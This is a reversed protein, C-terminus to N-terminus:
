NATLLGTCGISIDIGAVSVSEIQFMLTTKELVPVPTHPLDIQVVAGNQQTQPLGFYVLGNPSVFIANISYSATATGSKNGTILFNNILWSSGAPVTYRGHHSIGKGAAIYGQIAGAGSIRATINGVNTKNSGFGTVPDDFVIMTNIAMWTLSSTVVSTGNMNVTENQYIFGPGVGILFIKRAGTGGTTDSTSASLLEINVPSNPLMWAVAPEWCNVNTINAAANPIYGFSTVSSQGVIRNAASAMPYSIRESVLPNGSADLIISASAYQGGAIDV